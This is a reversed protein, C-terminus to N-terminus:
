PEVVTFTCSGTDTENPTGPGFREYGDSIAEDWTLKFAIEHEGTSLKGVPYFWYIIWVGEEVRIETAYRDWNELLKGDLRVEYNAHALHDDMLDPLAVFWSWEVYVNDNTTPREPVIGKQQCYALIDVRNPETTPTATVTTNPPPPPTAGVGVTEKFDTEVLNSFIWLHQVEGEDSTYAVKYWERDQSDIQIGLVGLQTGPPVSVMVEYNTGPGSRLNVNETSRIVGQVTPTPTLTLTPTVTPPISTLTPTPTDSPTLTASPIPTATFRPTFSVIPGLTRTPLSLIAGNDPGSPSPTEPEVEDCAALLLVIGILLWLHKRM